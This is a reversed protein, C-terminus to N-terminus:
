LPTADALVAMGTINGMSYHYINFENTYTILQTLMTSASDTALSGDQKNYYKVPVKM